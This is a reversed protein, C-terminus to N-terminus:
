SLSTGSGVEPPQTSTYCSAGRNNASSSHSTWNSNSTLIEPATFLQAKDPHSNPEHSYQYTYYDPLVTDARPTENINLRLAFFYFVHFIFVFGISIFYNTQCFSSCSSFDPTRLLFHTRYGTFVYDVSPYQRWSTHSCIFCSKYNLLVLSQM